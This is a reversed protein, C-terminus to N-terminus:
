RNVVNQASVWGGPEGRYNIRVWAGDESTELQTWESGPVVFGFPQSNSDPGTYVLVRAGQSVIRVATGAGAAVDAGPEPTTELTVEATIEGTAEVTPEVTAEETAEVTAEPTVEPTGEESPAAETVVETATVEGTTTITETASETATSDPTALTVTVRETPTLEATATM